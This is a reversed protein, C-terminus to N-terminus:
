RGKILRRYAFFEKFTLYIPEFSAGSKKEEKTIKVLYNWHEFLSKQGNVWSNNPEYIHTPESAVGNLEIIHSNKGEVLDTLSHTKIDFRGYRFGEIQTCIANMRQTLDDSILHNGDRFLTGRNHNGIAQVLCDEEKEPIQQLIKNSIKPIYQRARPDKKLLDHVTSRGDGKVRLFEKYTLSTISFHKSDAKRVCFIGYEETFSSFEQAIYDQNIHQIFAKLEEATNIKEIGIGREGIEPKLIIPFDFPSKQLKQLVSSFHERNSICFYPPVWEQPLSQLMESKSYGFLGGYKM